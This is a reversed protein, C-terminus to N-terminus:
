NKVMPGILEHMEYFSVGSISQLNPSSTNSVVGLREWRDSEAIVQNHICSGGTSSNSKQM